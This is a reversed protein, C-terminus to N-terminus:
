FAGCPSADQARYRGVDQIGGLPQGRGLDVDGKLSGVLMSTPGGNAVTVGVFVPATLGQHRLPGEGWADETDGEVCRPVVSMELFVSEIRFHPDCKFHLARVLVVVDRQEEVRKPIAGIAAASLPLSDDYGRGIAVVVWACTHMLM